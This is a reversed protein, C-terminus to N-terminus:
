RGKLDSEVQKALAEIRELKELTATHRKVDLQKRAEFALAAVEGVLCEITEVDGLVTGLDRQPGVRPEVHPRTARPGQFWRAATHSHRAAKGAHKCAARLDPSPRRIAETLRATRYRLKLVDMRAWDILSWSSGFGPYANSEEEAARREARLYSTDKPDVTRKQSAGVGAVPVAVGLAAAVARYALRRTPSISTPHNKEARTSAFPAVVLPENV